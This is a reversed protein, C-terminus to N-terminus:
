NEKEFIKRLKGEGPGAFDQVFIDGQLPVLIRAGGCEKPGAVWSYTQIGTALLRQRERRLKEELSLNGETDAGPPQVYVTKDFTELDMGYLQRKECVTGKLM